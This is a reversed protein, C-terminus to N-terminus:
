RLEMQGMHEFYEEIEELDNLFRQDEPPLQYPKHEPVLGSMKGGQAIYKKLLDEQADTMPQTQQKRYVTDGTGTFRDVIGIDKGQYRAGKGENAIREGWMRSANVRTMLGEWIEAQDRLSMTKGKASTDVWDLTYQMENFEDWEPREGLEQIIQKQTKGEGKLRQADEDWFYQKGSLNQDVQDQPKFGKVDVRWPRDPWIQDIRPRLETDVKNWFEKEAPDGFESKGLDAYYEDVWDVFDNYQEVRQRLNYDPRTFVRMLANGDADTVDLERAQGRLLSPLNDTQTRPFQHRAPVGTDELEKIYTMHRSPNETMDRAEMMADDSVDQIRFKGRETVTELVKSGEPIIRRTNDDIPADGKGRAGVSSIPQDWAYDGIQRPKLLKKAAIPGVAQGIDVASGFVKAGIGLGPVADALDFGADMVDWGGQWEETGARHMWSGPTLEHKQATEIEEMMNATMPAYAGPFFFQGMWGLPNTPVTVNQEDVTLGSRQPPVASYTPGGININQEFPAAPLRNVLGLPAIQGQHFRAGEPEFAPDKWPEAM